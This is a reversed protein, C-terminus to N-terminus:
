RGNHHAKRKEAAKTQAEAILSKAEADSMEKGTTAEFLWRVLSVGNYTGDGNSTAQELTKGTMEGM